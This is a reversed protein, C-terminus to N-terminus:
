QRKHCYIFLDSYCFAEFLLLYLIKFFFNLLFFLFIYVDVYLSRYEIWPYSDTVM